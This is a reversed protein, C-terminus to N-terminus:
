REMERLDNPTPKSTNFHEIQLDWTIKRVSKLSILGSALDVQYVALVRESRDFLLVLPPGNPNHLVQWDIPSGGTQLAPTPQLLRPREETFRPQTEIQARPPLDATEAGAARDPAVAVRPDFGEPAEARLRGAHLVPLSVVCAAGIVRFIWSGWLVHRDM